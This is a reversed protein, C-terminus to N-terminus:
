RETSFQNRIVSKILEYGNALAYKEDIGESILSLVKIDGLQELQSKKLLNKGTVIICTKKSRACFQSIGSVVKGSLTQEDLKGEGLVM